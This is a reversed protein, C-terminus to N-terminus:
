PDEFLVAVKHRNFDGGKYFKLRQGNVKFSKEEEGPTFIEVAGHPFVEKIVFPGSWRSMLKGPFLRLRSNFLLVQQGKKFEKRVLGKDHYKKTRAKFIVANEYAQMRWEELENLKLLRKEGALGADFNLFKVAWYAKHELEVPLHCSKGYVLQYPSFGLHTKFATRYAWLTDNLKMSWDKRSTSVTKELIQKLQRNSVEVQGSTQPHYPTAVKHKVNYKELVNELYKNCFHKGGDSILIRPVGFRTFINEKLFKVVTHSDNAQCPIAEVWKTVYDVCVLIHLNSRSSPFPGMFDIGWCDFPEVELMQNLPMEDRKSVNGTRQCNDCRRAFEVCDAFLTPWFFGSQLVKAATRPGSHHGGYPSSHCHWMISQAEEEDVCRRILGDQGVKFLYPDDWFYFNADRFFKKKQQYSYDEPIENGAKFNAMDAFWPRKSVMLLKEDPFEENICKEKTTVMPNELRSLHDAVVNEVGKKDKIELDFEQLLLVWRLLRPKSDGKTLLYKLASHDSFVVVKSGILYSRFKELAFVIALLEKETTTYNIQNENLVKSAYYIAHFFKAHRQGLVAGVAYDSADCMLEFPLDWNPAVIIPATVLKEKIVVFANLCEDDFKFENEKVLLNSLPKAIKSFDKIFRRYFGAHGLFSRVGKVNVPPPLEKIVEIKAQDVQIGKSSIKHGLVIGEKVMFHCKEWNLVLNTSICRKLVANLNALCKDFSKGFVSFDDMFVEITDEMMDAFISLMCRQFTAPANCLGFPMKRYAFVGFPCTFATKEQDEPDVVIQNYGSYGDLFCYYAQGALRELMQDMFPLPFHDKRTASNLRRYDICMRWGTVTRTPILENKENRVVTMGGKKPVVHVPSVWASDSIPYIMGAELLKLVEKKVVEKMTPNLRRQPQVVPKYEDEMKIKHMCFGPSIGKLDSISWGMAEKNERLVRTLKEAELSSLRSSIIAPQSADEGLFVYKLHPPLEKLEPITVKLDEKGSAKEEVAYVNEFDKQAEEEKCSELQRLCIEIEKDWEEELDDISNVIVRELPLSPTEEVLVDEVVEEIVDVKYCQPEEDHHKMAKFVNFMVQEGHTRLMLEGMEVDILARGTALFPRGLLLPEVDADDEMDLIVFDAPFVFEAVRVLVDHLIGYPHVISRDALSLQMKTPKAVAGPIKKMMSLPMLNISAGLDCLARGVSINGISCPITFSGPDKKKQPLKKQIIASCEETMDVTDDDLPKRKKTLLDKMFKAYVPMQELVEAFPINIQLDHLMKMFKKFQQHDNAKAKKKRPYPLKAHVSSEKEEVGKGKKEVLKEDNEKEIKKEKEDEVLEEKESEIMKKKKKTVIEPSPVVRNRLNIAKCSENRPNDKTSGEFGNNQTAAFQRSLQGVQTELNKISAEHNKNAIDQNTKMQDQSVKMAEFNGQTVKIFQTLTDELQSPRRQQSNQSSSQQQSQNSNQNGGWGFNPHDRWGPNYTNSYPDYKPNNRKFNALYKAEESGEPFCQGNAHGQGCFDCKVENAAMVPMQANPTSTLHKLVAAMQSNMLTSQALLATQTDLEIMGAKKKAGRDNEVRYENQAMSEVLERAQTQNKNKLSGGASADLFMRTQARLGQTFHQMQTHSDLGHKPCKKLSLKFREWADYLTESDGQEFSTIDARRELYKHIPFYRDMFKMELEQWTNITNPPITDLWDKARGTLSYKFLRLRKDSESVGPPDTYDCAEYFHELHLNPCQTEAGSYQNEKLASLVSNKIDFSVHNRPQFGLNALEGNNRQGYDGLMREPVVPPPPPPNEAMINAENDSTNPSSVAEESSEQAVGALRAAERALRVAKRNAKATKEIEPDFVLERAVRRGQM